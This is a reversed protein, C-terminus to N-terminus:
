LMVRKPTYSVSLDRVVVASWFGDKRVRTPIAEIDPKKPPM